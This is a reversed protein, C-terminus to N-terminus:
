LYRDIEDLVVYSDQGRVGGSEDVRTSVARRGPSSAPLRDGTAVLFEPKVVFLEHLEEVWIGLSLEGDGDVYSGDIVATRNALETVGCAPSVAVVERVRFPGPLQFLGAAARAGTPNLSAEDWLGSASLEEDGVFGLEYKFRGDAYERVQTVAGRRGALGQETLTPETGIEVIDLVSFRPKTMGFLM